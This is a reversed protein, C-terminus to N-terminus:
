LAAEWEQHVMRVACPGLWWLVLVWKLIFLVTGTLIGCWISKAAALHPDTTGSM